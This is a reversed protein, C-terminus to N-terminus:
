SEIERALSTFRAFRLGDLFAFVLGLPVIGVLSTLWVLLSIGVASELQLGFLQVLVVTAAVQMGGGVGPIQVVSAFSVFGLFVLVDTLHLSATEPFARFLTVYGAVITLWEVVSWALLRLVSSLRRTSQLGSLLTELRRAIRDQHHRSLFSFAASFREQLSDSWRHLGFLVALCLVASIGAVWGGVEFGWRIIPGAGQGRGGLQALAFGFLAVVLLIDYIRELLWAAVQSSFPVKESMAILYPRVLEGPRGLLVVATFGIATAKFLRWQGAGPRLPELLVAWRLVRGYYSLLMVLLSAILWRWDARRWTQWFLRTDFDEGRARAWLYVLLALAAFATV